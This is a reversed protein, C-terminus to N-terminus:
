APSAGSGPERLALPPDLIERAIVFRRWDAPTMQHGLITVAGVLPAATPPQPAPAQAIPTAARVPEPETPAQAPKPAPVPAPPRQRQKPPLPVPRAAGPLRQGPRQPFPQGPRPASRQPIPQGARPLPRQPPTPPRLVGGPRPQAPGPLTRAQTQQQRAAQQRRRLEQLQEQRRRALEQVRDSPSAPPQATTAATQAGLVEAVPRGTRLAELRAAELRRERDKAKKQEGLWQLIRGLIPGGIVLVFILINIWTQM